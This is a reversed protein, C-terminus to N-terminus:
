GHPRTVHSLQCAFNTICTRVDSRCNRYEWFDTGELRSQEASKFQKRKKGSTKMCIMQHKAIRDGNFKRGCVDCSVRYDEEPAQAAAQAAIAEFDLEGGKLRPEPPPSTDEGALVKLAMETARSTGQLLRSNSPVKGKGAKKGKTRAAYDRNADKCAPVHSQYEDNSIQLGCVPCNTTAAIHKKACQKKHIALSSKFFKGNCIECLITRPPPM